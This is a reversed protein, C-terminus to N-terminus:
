EFTVGMRYERHWVTRCALRLKDEPVILNFREPLRMTRALDPFELAAGTSSIDRLICPQKLGGYEVIAPKNVRHRTAIRTEVSPKGWRL